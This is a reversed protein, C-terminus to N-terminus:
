GQAPVCSTYRNAWKWRYITGGKDAWFMRFANEDYQPPRYSRCNDHTLEQKWVLITGDVGADIIATPPGWTAVLEAANTGVWSRMTASQSENWEREQRAMWACSSLSVCLLVTSARMM